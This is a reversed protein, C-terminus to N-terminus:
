QLLVDNNDFVCNIIQCTVSDFKSELQDPLHNENDAMCCILTQLQPGFLIINIQIKKHHINQTSM